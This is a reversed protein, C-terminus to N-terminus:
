RASQLLPGALAFTLFRLWPVKLVEPSPCIFCKLSNRLKGSGTQRRTIPTTGPLSTVWSPHFPVLHVPVVSTGWGRVQVRCMGM